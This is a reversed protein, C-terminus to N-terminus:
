SVGNQTCLIGYTLCLSLILVKEVLHKLPFITFLFKIHSESKNM